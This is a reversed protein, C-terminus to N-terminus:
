PRKRKPLRKATTQARNLISRGEPETIHAATPKHDHLRPKSGIPTKFAGLNGSTQAKAALENVPHGYPGHKVGPEPNYYAELPDGSTSGFVWEQSLDGDGARATIVGIGIRGPIVDGRFFIPFASVYGTSGWKMRAADAAFEPHIKVVGELFESSGAQFAPGTPVAGGSFSTPAFARVLEAFKRGREVDNV